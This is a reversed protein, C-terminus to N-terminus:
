CGSTGAGIVIGAMLSIIIIFFLKRTEPKM